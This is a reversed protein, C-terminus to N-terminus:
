GPRRTTWTLYDPDVVVEGTSRLRYEGPDARKWARLDPPLWELEGSDRRRVALGRREDAVEIEGHFQTQELVNDQQDTYTKGVLVYKGVLHDAKDRWFPPPGGAPASSADDTM